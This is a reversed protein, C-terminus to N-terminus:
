FFCFTGMRACQGSASRGRRRDAALRFLSLLHFLLPLMFMIGVIILGVGTGAYDTHWPLFAGPRALRLILGTALLLGGVLDLVLFRLPLPSDKIM